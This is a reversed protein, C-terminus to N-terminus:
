KLIVMNKLLSFCFFQTSVKKNQRFGDTMRRLEEGVYMWSNLSKCDDNATDTAAAAAFRRLYAPDAYFDSDAASPVYNRTIQHHHRHTPTQKVTHAAFTDIGSPDNCSCENQNAKTKPIKRYRDYCCTTAATGPATQISQPSSPMVGAPSENQVCEACCKKKRSIRARKRKRLKHAASSQPAANHVPEVSVPIRQPDNQEQSPRLISPPVPAFPSAPVAGLVPGSPSSNRMILYNRLEEISAASTIVDPLVFASTTSTASPSFPSPSNPVSSPPTPFGFHSGSAPVPSNPGSCISFVM